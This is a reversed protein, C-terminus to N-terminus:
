SNLRPQEERDDAAPRRALLTGIQEAHNTDHTSLRMLIDRVTYPIGRPHAVPIALEMQSIAGVAALVASHSRGLRELISPGPERRADPHLDKWRADDFYTFRRGPYACSALAESLYYYDVEVLHSLVEAVAWEEDLPANHLSPEEAGDLLALLKGRATRISRSLEMDSTM